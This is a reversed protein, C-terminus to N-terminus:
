TRNSVLHSNKVSHTRNTSDLTALACRCRGYCRHWDLVVVTKYDIRICSMQFINNKLCVKISNIGKVTNNSTNCSFRVICAITHRFDKWTSHYNTLLYPTINLALLTKTLTCTISGVIVTKLLSATACKMQCCYWLRCKLWIRRYHLRPNM